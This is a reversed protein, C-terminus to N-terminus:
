SNLISFFYKVELLADDPLDTCHVANKIKDIGFLARLTNSRLHRAIEPDSPGVFNRFETAINENKKIEMAIAPGNCLEDVMAGYELVVGKYVEFFEAANAKELQVM